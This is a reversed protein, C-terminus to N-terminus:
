ALTAFLSLNMGSLFTLEYQCGALVASSHVVGAVIYRKIRVIRAITYRFPGGPGPPAQLEALDLKVREGM